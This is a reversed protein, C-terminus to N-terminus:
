ILRCNNATCNSFTTFNRPFFVLKKHTFEDYGILYEVQKESNSSNPNSILKMTLTGNEFKFSYENEEYVIQETYM